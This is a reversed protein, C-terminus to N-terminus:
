RAPLRPAASSSQKAPLPQTIRWESSRDTRSVCKPRPAAARNNVQIRDLGKFVDNGEPDVGKLPLLWRVSKGPEVAPPLTAAGWVGNLDVPTQAGVMTGALVTAGAIVLLFRPM